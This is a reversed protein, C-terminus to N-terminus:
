HLKMIPDHNFSAQKNLLACCKIELFTHKFYTAGKNDLM